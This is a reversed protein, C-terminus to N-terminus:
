KDRIPQIHLTMFVEQKPQNLVLKYGM